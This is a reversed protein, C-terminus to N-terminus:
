RAPPRTVTQAQLHRHPERGGPGPALGSRTGERSEATRQGCLFGVKQPVFQKSGISAGATIEGPWGAGSALAATGM